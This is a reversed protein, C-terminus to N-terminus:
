KEGMRQTKGGFETVDKRQKKRKVKNKSGKTPREGQGCKRFGFVVSSIHSQLHKKL